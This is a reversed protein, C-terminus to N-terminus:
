KFDHLMFICNKYKKRKKSRWEGAAKGFFSIKHNHPFLLKGNQKEKEELKM